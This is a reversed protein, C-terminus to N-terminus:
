ITAAKAYDSQLLPIVSLAASASGLLRAAKDLFVRRDFHVHVYAEWLDIISQDVKKESMEDGKQHFICTTDRPYGNHKRLLSRRYEARMWSFREHDQVLGHARFVALNKSTM